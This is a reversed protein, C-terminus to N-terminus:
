GGALNGHTVGLHPPPMPLVHDVQEPGVPEEDTQDGKGADADDEDQDSAAQRTLNALFSLLHDFCEPRSTFSCTKIGM